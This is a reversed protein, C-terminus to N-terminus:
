TRPDPSSCPTRSTPPPLLDRHFVEEVRPERPLKRVSVTLKLGALMRARDIDGVGQRAILKSGGMDDITDMLRGLEVEANQKQDHAVLLDIAERPKCLTEMVGRNVAAVLGRAVEPHERMLDPSLMLASGYLEPVADRFKLFRLRSAVEGGATRIAASSTSLYGFLADSKREDLLGILVRWNGDNSVIKVSAPDLGTRSAYQEFTNLAVDTAHGTITLGTLQEASTVPSAASLIIVSPSTDMVMYVGVPAKGPVKAAQEYAAQIDGYGVDFGEEVMRGAATFAGRGPVFEVEIGEDRFYGREDAVLFWANAGSFGSNLLFRVKHLPAPAAVAEVPAAAIEGASRDNCGALLLIAAFCAWTNCRHKM